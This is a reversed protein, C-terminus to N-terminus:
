LREGKVPAKSSFSRGNWVPVLSDYAKMDEEIETNELGTMLESLVKKARTRTETAEAFKNEADLTLSLLYQARAVHARRSYGKSWIEISERIMERGTLTLLSVM